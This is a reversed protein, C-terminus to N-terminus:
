SGLGAPHWQPVTGEGAQCLCARWARARARAAHRRHDTAGRSRRPLFDSGRRSSGTIHIRGPKCCSDRAWCCPKEGLQELVDERRGQGGHQPAVQHEGGHREGQHRLLGHGRDCSCLSALATVRAAARLLSLIPVGSVLSWKTRSSSTLRGRHQLLRRWPEVSALVNCFLLHLAYPPRQQPVQSDELGGQMLCLGECNGARRRGRASPGGKAALLCPKISTRRGGDRRHGAIRGCSM